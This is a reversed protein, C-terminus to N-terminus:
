LALKDCNWHISIIYINVKNFEVIRVGIGRHNKDILMFSKWKIKTPFSEFNWAPPVCHESTLLILHSPGNPFSCLVFMATLM